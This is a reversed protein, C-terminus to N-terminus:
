TTKGLFYRNWFNRPLIEMMWYVIRMIRNFHSIYIIPRIVLEGVDFDVESVCISANILSVKDRITEFDTSSVTASSELPMGQPRALVPLASCHAPSVAAVGTKEQPASSTAVAMTTRSGHEHFDSSSIQMKPSPIEIVTNEVDDDIDQVEMPVPEVGIIGVSSKELQESLKMELAEWDREEVTPLLTGINAM